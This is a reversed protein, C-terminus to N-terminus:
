KNLQKLAKKINIKNMQEIVYSYQNNQISISCSAIRHRIAVLLNNVIITYNKILLSKIKDAKFNEMIYNYYALKFEKFTESEKDNIEWLLCKYEELLQETVDQGRSIKSNLYSNAFSRLKGNLEHISKAIFEMKNSSIETLIGNEYLHLCEQYLIDDNELLLEYLELIITSNNIYETCIVKRILKFDEETYKGNYVCKVLKNHIDIIRKGVNECKNPLEDIVLKKNFFLGVRSDSNIM